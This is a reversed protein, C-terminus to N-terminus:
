FKFSEKERGGGGKEKRKAEAVFSLLVFCFDARARARPPLPSLFAGTRRKKMEQEVDGSFDEHTGRRKTSEEYRARM